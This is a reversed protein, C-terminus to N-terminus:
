GLRRVLSRITEVYLERVITKQVALPAPIVIKDVARATYRLLTKAGDPSAELEYAAEQEQISNDLTRTNVRRKAADFTFEVTFTQPPLGRLQVQFEVLKKNGEAKKLESKKFVELDKSASEPEQIAAWVRDVPADILSAFRIDWERGKHEISESYIEKASQWRIEESRFRLYFFASAAVVIVILAGAAGLYIKKM